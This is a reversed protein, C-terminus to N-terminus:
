MDELEFLNLWHLALKLDYYHKPDLKCVFYILLFFVSSDLHCIHIFANSTLFSTKAYNMKFISYHLLYHAILSLDSESNLHLTWYYVCCVKALIVLMYLQMFASVVDSLFMFVRRSWIWDLLFLLDSRHTTWFIVYGWSVLEALALKNLM